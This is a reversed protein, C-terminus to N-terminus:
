RPEGTTRGPDSRDREGGALVPMETTNELSVDVGRPIAVVAVPASRLIATATLVIEVREDATAPMGAPAVASRGPGDAVYGVLYRV